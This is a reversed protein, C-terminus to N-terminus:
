GVYFAKQMVFIGFFKKHYLFTIVKLCYSEIKLISTLYIGICSNYVM